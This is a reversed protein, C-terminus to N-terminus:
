VMNRPRYGREACKQGHAKRMGSVGAAFARPFHPHPKAARLAAPLTPPLSLAPTDCPVRYSFCQRLRQERYKRVM